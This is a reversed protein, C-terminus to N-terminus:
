QNLTGEFRRRLEATDCRTIDYFITDYINTSRATHKILDSCNLIENILSYYETENLEPVHRTELKIASQRNFGFHDTNLKFHTWEIKVTVIAM